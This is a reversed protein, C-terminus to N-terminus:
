SFYFHFKMWSIIDFSGIDRGRDTTQCSDRMTDNESYPPPPSSPRSYINPYIGNEIDVAGIPVTPPLVMSSVSITSVDGNYIKREVKYIFVSM